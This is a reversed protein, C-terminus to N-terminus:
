RLFLRQAAEQVRRPVQGALGIAAAAGRQARFVAQVERASVAELRALTEQPARLRGLTFLEQAATEMRRAPQELGRLTRVRLQQRARGLDTASPPRLALRQLLRDTEALFTGAQDSATAAEIVFQGTLPLVDANCALYYALGRRERLEDLLPSSMGEGLLAAALVHAAHADDALTPTEWGLVIQCQASGGLRQTKLGGVWAAPELAHPSGAPMDAFAREVARLLAETDLAGAAAIVVNAASYQRGVYAQLDERTFGEIAARLGIVPRGAAHTPGYCARDFAQLALAAPDEEVEALEQLIVQRERELEDAPFSPRRVIDALLEVLAPLDGSLGDVHYATHDKDTHANLEAGLREADLNVQQCSRSPTGKFAMHEVVHSIGAWRRPEHLSGSRIFVSLSATARWPMPLLVLRLGNALTHLFPEPCAPLNLPPAPHLCSESHRGPYLM